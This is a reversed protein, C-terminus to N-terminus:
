QIKKKKKKKFLAQCKMHFTQRSSDCSSEFRIKESFNPLLEYCIQRQESQHRLPKITELSSLEFLIDLGM